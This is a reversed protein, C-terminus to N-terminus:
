PEKLKVRYFKQSPGTPLTLPQIRQGQNYDSEHQWTKLDTSSQLEYDRGIRGFMQFSVENGKRGFDEITPILSSTSKLIFGAVYFSDRFYAASTLSLTKM